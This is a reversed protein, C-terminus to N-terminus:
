VSMVVNFLSSRLYVEGKARQRSTIDASLMQLYSPGLDPGVFCRAQDPDLKKSAKITNRFSSKFFYIKLFILQRCFLM